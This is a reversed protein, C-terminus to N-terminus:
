LWITQKAVKQTGTSTVVLLRGYLVIVYLVFETSIILFVSVLNYNINIKSISSIHDLAWFHPIAHM